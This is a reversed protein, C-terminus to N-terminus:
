RECFLESRRRSARSSRRDNDMAPRDFLRCLRAISASWLAQHWNFEEESDLGCHRLRLISKEFDGCLRIDVFTERADSVGAPRWSFSLKRKLFSIYTGTIRTAAGSTCLHEIQFGDAVHCSVNRCDPHYGPVSIWAEMYEPVTLAHFIRRTDAAVSCEMNVTWPAKGSGETENRYSMGSTRRQLM